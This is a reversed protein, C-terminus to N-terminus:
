VLRPVFYDKDQDKSYRKITKLGKGVIDRLEMESFRKYATTKENCYLIRKGSLLLAVYKGYKGTSQYADEITPIEGEIDSFKVVKRTIGTQPQTISPATNKVTETDM